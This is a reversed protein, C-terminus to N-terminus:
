TYLRYRDLINEDIENDTTCIDFKLPKPSDPDGLHM